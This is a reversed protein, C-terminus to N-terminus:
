AVIGIVLYIVCSLIAAFLTYPAIVKIVKMTSLGTAGSVMILDDSYFCFKSGFAAASMVGAIVIAPDVGMQVALPVFIPLCIMILAWFSCAAFMILAPVLFCFLPLLFPPIVKTLVGVVYPAFGMAENSQTLMYIFSFVFGAGAMSLVGAIMNDVFEKLTMRRTAVYLVCQVAIAAIIGSVVDSNCILTVAILAAMPIIFYWISGPKVDADEEEGLDILTTADDDKEYLPGGNDVREYATKLAGVKPVVGLAVLLAIIIAIIPFFMYPIARVYDSSDLKLDSIISIGYAGWSTFPVLVCISAGIASVGYALHERPIRHSDTLDKMSSSCSLVNLYDDIFMIIGMIWTAVMASKRGKVFKSLARAFGLFAGSKTFEKILVGFGLLVFLIFDFSQNTLVGYLQEVFGGMFNQKYVLVVGVIASLMLMEALRKTILIGIVLVAIPIVSIIGYDGAEM